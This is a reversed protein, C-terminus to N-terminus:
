SSLCCKPIIFLTDINKLKFCCFCAFGTTDCTLVAETYKYVYLCTCVYVYVYVRTMNDASITM